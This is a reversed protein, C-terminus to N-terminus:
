LSSSCKRCYFLGTKGEKKVVCDSCTRCGNNDCTIWNLWEVRKCDICEFAEKPGKISKLKEIASELADSNGLKSAYESCMKLKANRQKESLNNFALAGRIFWHLDNMAQFNPETPFLSDNM